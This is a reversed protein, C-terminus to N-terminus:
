AHDRLLSLLIDLDEFFFLHFNLLRNLMLCHLNLRRMNWSNSDVRGLGCFHHFLLYDLFDSNLGDVFSDLSGIFWGM